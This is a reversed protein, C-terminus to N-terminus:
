GGPPQPRTGELALANPDAVVLSVRRVGARALRASVRRGVTEERSVVLVREIGDPLTSPRVDGGPRVEVRVVEPNELLRLAEAPGIERFARVGAAALWPEPECGLLVLALLIVRM